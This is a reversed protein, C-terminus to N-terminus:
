ILTELLVHNSDMHRAYLIKNVYGIWIETSDALAWVYIHIGSGIDKDPIGFMATISNYNMDAKLNDKFNEVTLDDKNILQSNHTCGVFIFLSLLVVIKM